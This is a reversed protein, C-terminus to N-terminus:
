SEMASVSLIGCMLIQYLPLLPIQQLDIVSALFSQLDQPSEHFGLALWAPAGNLSPM